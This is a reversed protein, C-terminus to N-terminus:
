MSVSSRICTGSDDCIPGSTTDSAIVEVLDALTFSTSNWWYRDSLVCSPWDGFVPSLSMMSRPFMCYLKDIEDVGESNITM